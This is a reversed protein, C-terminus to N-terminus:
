THSPALSSGLPSSRKEPMRVPEIDSTQSTVHSPYDSFRYESQQLDEEELKMYMNPDKTRM